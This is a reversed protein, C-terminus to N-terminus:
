GNECVKLSSKKTSSEQVHRQKKKKKLGTKSRGKRGDGEKRGEGRGRKMRMWPALLGNKEVEDERKETRPDRFVDGVETLGLETSEILM